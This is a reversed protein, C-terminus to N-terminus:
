FLIPVYDTGLFTWDKQGTDSHGPNALLIQLAM